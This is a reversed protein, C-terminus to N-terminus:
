RRENVRMTWTQRVSWPDDPPIARAAVTFGQAAFFAEAADWGAFKKEEVRHHELFAQTRDDRHLHTVSRVYIDATVWAGGRAALARHVSAALRTKEDDGLYILLGEHVVAIPGPPLEAVTAAFAGPDLADLARVRYTGRLVAVGFRSVLDDKIAVIGPLDTDLYFVDRATAMALGRFSLGAAIELVRTAGLDALAVDLSAARLEFHKRRGASGPTEDATKAARAVEDPGFLLEAAQRAFPLDTQSKVMLLARASPSITSYDRDMSPCLTDQPPRAM